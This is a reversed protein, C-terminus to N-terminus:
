EVICDIWLIFQRSRFVIVSGASDCNQKTPKYSEFPGEHEEDRAELYSRVIEQANEMANQFKRHLKVAGHYPTYAEDDSYQVIYGLVSTM